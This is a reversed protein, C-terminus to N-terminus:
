RRRTGRTTRKSLRKLMILVNGCRRKLARLRWRDMINDILNIGLGGPRCESLDRPHICDPKVPPAFDRLRFRLQGRVRTVCLEIEGPACPGYAHRIINTSAEDVALVLKGIEAESIRVETLRRKLEARMGALAEPRAAFRYRLLDRASM